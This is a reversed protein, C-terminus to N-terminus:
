LSGLTRLHLYEEAQLLSAKESPLFTPLIKPLVAADGNKAFLCPLNWRAGQGKQLKQRRDQSHKKSAERKKKERHSLCQDNEHLAERKQYNRM